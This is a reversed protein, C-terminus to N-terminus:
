GTQHSILFHSSIPLEKYMILYSMRASVEIIWIQFISKEVFDTKKSVERQLHLKKKEMLMLSKPIKYKLLSLLFLTNSLCLILIMIRTHSLTRNNHVLARIQKFVLNHSFPHIHHIFYFPHSFFIDQVTKKKKM